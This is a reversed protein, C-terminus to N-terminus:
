GEEIVDNYVDEISNGFVSKDFNGAIQESIKAADERWDPNKAITDIFALFDGDDTYEYGNEGQRIVDKLCLDERCLLPLGNAAAEIYTLGQTESTSASVFLDGLQYYQQVEEPKVMGTFVVRDAIGLEAATQELEEKAPGDGVILFKLKENKTVAIAYLKLLEGINKETGLRGLNLMVIDEDSFGLARRKESREAETMRAKHQDISIGTPIVEIDNKMGYSQLSAEVKRTPAIVKEAKRLRRRIFVRVLKRGLRESPILYIVYQEYMTHYTHVLPAGTKKAIRKAFQFTFFECQSHIVDPCWEILERILRHRFSTPMRVDPYIAFPVSRIYYVEGDKHSRVTDSLTLIRVDHGKAKLETYLNKVSTVVGNTETTYLDTTILIKM